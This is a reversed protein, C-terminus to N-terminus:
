VVKRVSQFPQLNALLQLRMEEYKLSLTDLRTRADGVAGFAEDTSCMQHQMWGAVLQEDVDLGDISRWDISKHVSLSEELRDLKLLCFALELDVFSQSFNYTAFPSANRIGNLAEIAQSYRGELILLRADCLYIFNTLAGIGTLTQLNRASAIELRTLSLQEDNIQAVCREARLRALSFAARNYLLAEITAQDGDKLAHDRSQLFWEQACRRDGCILFSDSIVMALRARADHDRDSSNAIALELSRVMASFNSTEFELHAKWASAIAVVSADQMALGLVQSRTIRDLAIPSLNEFLHLLGETLMIWATAHGSRGDGFEQRLEGIIARTDSFRGVRAFYSGKKALIEARKVLDSTVQLERDLRALLQSM